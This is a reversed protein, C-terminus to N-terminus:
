APAGLVKANHQIAAIVVETAGDAGVHGGAEILIELVSALAIRNHRAQGLRFHETWEAMTKPESETIDDM